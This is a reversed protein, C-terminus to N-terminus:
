HDDTKFKDHCAGCAKGTALFAPRIEDLKGGQSVKALAAAKTEFDKALRNFEAPNAYIDDKAETNKAGKTSADFGEVLMPALAAVRQALLAFRAADYPAQGKVVAAMPGFNWRILTFVGQRYKVYHQPKPGGAPADTHAAASLALTCGLLLGLTRHFRAITM